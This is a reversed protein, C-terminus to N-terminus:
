KDFPLYWNQEDMLLSRVQEAVNPDSFKAAVKNALYANGRRRAVRMLDFWRRGEYALEMAREEMILDEIYTTSDTIGAPIEHSKLYVRERIGRGSRWYIDFQSNNANVLDLADTHNGALNLAEALLLHIDSVRHMIIDSSAPVADDILYKNIVNNGDVEDYTVGQGRFVDGTQEDNQAVQKTYLDIIVPAPKVLYDLHYSTWYYLQNEIKDDRSYPVATLVENWQSESSKFINVWNEEEYSNSVYPFDIGLMSTYLVNAADAYNGKELLLEGMLAYLYNTEWTLEEARAIASDLQNILTDIMVERDLYVLDEPLAPMNDPIYAAEGYLRILTFYAWTRLGLFANCAINYVLDTFDQDKGQVDALYILAENVSIILKYFGSADTYINHKTPKHLNIDVLDSGANETVDALDGLLSSTIIYNPMTEYLTTFCGLYSNSIDTVSQYHKDPLIQGGQKEDFFDECSTFILMASLLISLCYILRKM